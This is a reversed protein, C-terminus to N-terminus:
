PASRYAPGQKITKINARVYDVFLKQQDSPLSEAYNYVDQKGIQGLAEVSPFGLEKARETINQPGAVVQTSGDGPPTPDIKPQTSDSNPINTNTNQQDMKGLLQDINEYSQVVKDRGSDPGSGLNPSNTNMLAAFGVPDSQALEQFRNNLETAVDAQGGSVSNILGKAQDTLQGNVFAKPDFNALNTFGSKSIIGGATNFFSSFDTPNPIIGEIVAQPNRLLEILQFNQTRTGTPDVNKPELLSTMKKVDFNVIAGITKNVGSITDKLTNIAQEPLSILGSGVQQLVGVLQSKQISSTVLTKIEEGSLGAPLNIGTLESAKTQAINKLADNLKAASATDIGTFQPPLISKALNQLGKGTQTVIEEGQLILQEFPAKVAIAAQKISPWNLKDLDRAMVTQIDSAKPLVAFDNLTKNKLDEIHSKMAAMEPFNMSNLKSLGGLVTDKLGLLGMATTVPSFVGSAISGAASALGSGISAAGNAIGSLIGTEVRQDLPATGQEILNKYNLADQALTFPPDQFGGPKFAKITSMAGQVGSIPLYKSTTVNGLLSAVPGNNMQAVASQALTPINQSLSSVQQPAAPARPSTGAQTFPPTTTARCVNDEAPDVKSNEQGAWPQPMPIRPISSNPAGWKSSTTFPTISYGKHGPKSNIRLPKGNLIFEKNSDLSIEDGSKVAFMFDTKFYIGGYSGEMKINDPSYMTIAKSGEAKLKGNAKINVDKGAEFNIDKDAYFNFDNQTHISVSDRAYIDLKGDKTLEMWTNGDGTAIHILGKTDNLVIKSGTRTKITLHENKGSADGDDFTISHGGFRQTQTTYPNEKSGVQAQGSPLVTGNYQMTSTNTTPHNGGVGHNDTIKPGPSSIAQVSSPTRNAPSSQPDQNPSVGYGAAASRSQTTTNIQPQSKGTFQNNTRRDPNFNYVPLDAISLDKTPDKTQGYLGGIGEPDDPYNNANAEAKKTDFAKAVEDPKLSQALPSASGNGIPNNLNITSSFSSPITKTM